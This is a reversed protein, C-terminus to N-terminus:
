ATDKNRTAHLVKTTISLNKKFADLIQNYYDKDRIGINGEPTIEFTTQYPKFESLFELFGNIKNVEELKLEIKLLNCFYIFTGIKQSIIKLDNEILGWRHYFDLDEEKVKNDQIDQEFSEGYTEIMKVIDKRSDNRNTNRTNFEKILDYLILQAEM